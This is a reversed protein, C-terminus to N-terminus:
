GARQMSFAGRPRPPAADGRCCRARPACSERLHCSPRCFHLKFELTTYLEGPKLTSHVACAMVSDLITATWGGHITGLPNFFDERPEGEFVVQGHEAETLRISTRWRSRHPAALHHGAIM